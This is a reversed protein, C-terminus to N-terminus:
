FIGFTYSLSGFHYLNQLVIVTVTVLVLLVILVEDWWHLTVARLFTRERVAGFARTDLALTLERASVLSTTVVPILISFLARTRRIPGGRDFEVGRARQADMTEDFQRSITPVYRLASVFIFIFNPPLKKGFIHMRALANTLDAPHVTMVLLPFALAIAWFRMGLALGFVAGELTFPIVPGGPLWGPWLHFLVTPQFNAEVLEGFSTFWIGQTIVFFVSVGVTIWMYKFKHIPLRAVAIIGCIVLILVALATPSNFVAALALVCLEFVIIVFPHLWHVLSQRPTYEIDIIPM